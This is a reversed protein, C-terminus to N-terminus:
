IKLDIRIIAFANLLESFVISCEQFIYNRNLFLSLFQM